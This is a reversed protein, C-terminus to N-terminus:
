RLQAASRTIAAALIEKAIMQAHGQLGLFGEAVLLKGNISDVLRPNMNETVRLAERCANPFRSCAEVVYDYASM